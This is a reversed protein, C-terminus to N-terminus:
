PAPRKVKSKIYPSKGYVFKAIFIQIPIPKCVFVNQEECTTIHSQVWSQLSLTLTTKHGNTKSRQHHPMLALMAVKVDTNTQTICLWCQVGNASCTLMFCVTVLKCLWLSHTGCLMRTQLIIHLLLLAKLLLFISCFGLAAINLFRNNTAIAFISLPGLRSHLATFM